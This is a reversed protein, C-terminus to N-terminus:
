QLNEKLLKTLKDILPQMADMPMTVGLSRGDSLTLTFVVGDNVKDVTMTGSVTTM